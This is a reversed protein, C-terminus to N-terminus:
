AAAVDRGDRHLSEPRLLRASLEQFEPCDLILADLPGQAVLRGARMVLIEDFRELLHLRHVSSVVCAGAFEAFLNSYLRAETAADLHATPEDLLVLASGQAALVGRALAIRSRQGGSWNAAREAVESTLSQEDREVFDVAAVDLAHALDRSVPARDARACLLLNEAISGAFVEADQPILTSNARLIRAAEQTSAVPAHGDWRLALREACYLGALVRLLTSKGSGSDGVLAYRRGRELHLTIHDLAPRVGRGVAHRFTAERVELRQWSIPQDAATADVAVLSAASSAVEMPPAHRIVDASAYDAHQRAFSQFHQAISVIVGSAQAAYEWVM